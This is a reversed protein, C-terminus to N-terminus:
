PNSPKVQSEILWSATMHMRNNDTTTKIEPEALSNFLFDCRDEKKLWWSATVGCVIKLLNYQAFIKFEELNDFKIGAKSEVAQQFQQDIIHYIERYCQETRRELEKSLSYNFTNKPLEYWSERDRKEKLSHLAQSFIIIRDRLNHLTQFENPARNVELEVVKEYDTKLEAELLPITSFIGQNALHQAALLDYEGRNSIESLLLSVGDTNGLKILVLSALVKAEPDCTINKLINQLEPIALTGFQALREAILFRNQHQPLLKTVTSALSQCLDTAKTIAFSQTERNPSALEQYISTLPDINRYFM